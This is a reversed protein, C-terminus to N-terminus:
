TPITLLGIDESEMFVDVLEARYPHVNDDMFLFDPGMTSQFFHIHPAFSKDCYRVATLGQWNERICSRPSTDSHNDYHRGVSNNIWRWMPRKGCYQFALIM